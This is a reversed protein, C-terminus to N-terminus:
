KTNIVIDITTGSTVNSYLGYTNKNYSLMGPDDLLLTAGSPIEVSRLWYARTATNPDYISISIAGSSSIHSNSISISRIASSIEGPALLENTASVTANLSRTLTAM